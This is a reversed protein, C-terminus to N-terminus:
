FKVQLGIGFNVGGGTLDLIDSVKSFSNTFDMNKYDYYTYALNAFMGIHKGFYFRPQIHTDFTIGGGKAASIYQDRAEWNLNSYGVNTGILLDLHKRKIIHVNVIVLGDVAKVSPKTKTASDTSTFYDCLQLKVGIGLWNKVGREYSFNLMKNAARSSSSTASSGVKSMYDYIGLDGGIYFVNTKKLFSKQAMMNVSSIIILIAMVKKM